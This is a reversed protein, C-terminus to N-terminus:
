AGAIKTIIWRGERPAGALTGAVRAFTITLNKSETQGQPTRIDAAIAVDKTVLEGEFTAADFGPQNPQTLSAEAPGIGATVAARAASVARTHTTSEERWKDWATKVAQQAPTLKATPDRELKVVVELVKQNAIQYEMKRKAFESEAARATKEAEMLAKLALPRRQEPSVSTIEFDEVTGQERPDFEVASMMALTTNDRARSARFFQTLQQQEPARTCAAALLALPLLAAVVFPIVWSRIRSM